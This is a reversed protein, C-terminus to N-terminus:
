SPLFVYMAGVLLGFVFVVWVVGFAIRTFSMVEYPDAKAIAGFVLRYGGVLSFAYGAMAPAFGAKLALKQDHLLLLTLGAFAFCAIGAAVAIVGNIRVERASAAPDPSFSESVGDLIRASVNIATRLM